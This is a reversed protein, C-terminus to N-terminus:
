KWRLTATVPYHDSPFRGDFDTRDIQADLVTFSDDHLIWDIRSGRTGGRFAHFSLEDQTRDPHAVRYADLLTRGASTGAIMIRYPEGDETSNFDGTVILPLDGAQEEIFRRMLLASQKRAERGVHDWHTNIVMLERNAARDRLRIWSFMRTMSSDWSVSGPKDPQESLWVHGSDLPEFRDRRYLIAAYEGRVAGDDRGVGHFGYEPLNDRLFKAQFDLVEQTGLLDPDYARITQILSDHRHPWASEGDNALGYRINFSMVRLEPTPTADSQQELPHSTCGVFSLVAILLNFARM